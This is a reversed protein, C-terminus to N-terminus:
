ALPSARMSSIVVARPLANRATFSFKASSDVRYTQQAFAAAVQLAVIDGFASTGPAVSNNCAAAACLLSICALYEKRM